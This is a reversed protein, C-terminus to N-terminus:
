IGPPPSNWEASPSMSAAADFLYEPKAGAAGPATRISFAQVAQSALMMPKGASAAPVSVEPPLM